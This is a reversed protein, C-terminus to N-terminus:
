RDGNLMKKRERWDPLLATLLQYFQGSHDPHILHCFEHIMVYEICERPAALLQRNLTIVNKGPICSGWRSRMSRIRIQPMSVGKERFMPYIEGAIRAFVERCHRDLFDEALRKTGTADTPAKMELVLREGDLYAQNQEAPRVELMFPRGLIMVREGSVYRLPEPKQREREWFRNQAKRILMEKSRVFDDVREAPVSPHASAYVSGDRRVRLNINKVRKRELTYELPGEIGPLQRIMTKGTKM